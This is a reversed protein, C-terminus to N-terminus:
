GRDVRMTDMPLRTRRGSVNTDSGMVGVMEGTSGSRILYMPLKVIVFATTFAPRRWGAKPVDQMEAESTYLLM